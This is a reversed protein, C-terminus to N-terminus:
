ISIVEKTNLSGPTVLTVSDNDFYEASLTRAGDGSITVELDAETPIKLLPAEGYHCIKENRSICFVATPEMLRKRLVLTVQYKSHIMQM